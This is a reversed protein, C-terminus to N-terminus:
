IGESMNIWVTYPNDTIVKVGAEDIPIYVYEYNEMHDRLIRSLRSLTHFKNGRKIYRVNKKFKNNVVRDIAKASLFADYWRDWRITVPKHVIQKGDKEEIEPFLEMKKNDIYFYHKGDEIKDVAVLMAMDFTNRICSIRSKRRIGLVYIGDEPTDNNKLREKIISDILKEVLM